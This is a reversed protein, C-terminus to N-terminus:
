HAVIWFVINNFFGVFYLNLVEQILGLINSVGEELNKLPTFFLTHVSTLFVTQGTRALLVNKSRM